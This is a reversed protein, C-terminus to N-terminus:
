KPGPGLRLAIIVLSPNVAPVIVRNAIGRATSTTHDVLVAVIDLQGFLYCDGKAGHVAAAEVKAGDMRCPHAGNENVSRHVGDAVGDVGRDPATMAAGHVAFVEREDLLKIVQFCRSFLFAVRRRLSM